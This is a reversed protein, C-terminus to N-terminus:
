ARLTRATMRFVLEGNGDRVEIYSEPDVETVLWEYVRLANRIVEANSSLGLKAKIDALRQLSEPAM